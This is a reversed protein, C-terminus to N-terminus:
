GFLPSASASRATAPAIFLRMPRHAPDSAMAPLGDRAEEELIQVAFPDSFIVGGELTQHVARHMAAGLETRSPRGAEM